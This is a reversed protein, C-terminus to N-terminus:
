RTKKKSLRGHPRIILEISACTIYQDKAMFSAKTQRIAERPSCGSHIFKDYRELVTKEFSAFQKKRHEIVTPDYVKVQAKATKAKFQLFRFSETLSDLLSTFAYIMPEPLDISVTVLGDHYGSVQLDYLSGAPCPLAGRLAINSPNANM